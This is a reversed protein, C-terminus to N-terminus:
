APTHPTTIARHRGNLWRATLLLTILGPLLYIIGIAGTLDNRGATSFNFLLLPLTLVRGGGIVLTLIYQSWSVLFAFLACVMIGPFIAPLTIYFFARAGTAGLTRAQEEFRQDYNSFVSAMILIVYPLTPILHVLIVGTVSNALGLRIFIGHLGLVIAIGPVILPALVLLEVWPRAAFQYLGLARGAPIGLLLSITTAALSIGLSLGLSQLVGATDSLAYRWARLSWTDPLLDPFFWGSSFSWLAFPLLPLLLCCSMLTALLLRLSQQKHPSKAASTM